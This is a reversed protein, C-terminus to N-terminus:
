HFKKRPYEASHYKPNLYGYLRTKDMATLEKNDEKQKLSEKYTHYLRKPVALKYYYGACKVVMGCHANSMIQVKISTKDHYNIRHNDSKGNNRIFRDFLGGFINM